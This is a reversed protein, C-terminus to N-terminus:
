RQECPLQPSLRSTCFFVFCLGVSYGWTVVLQNTIKPLNDVRSEEDLFLLKFDSGAGDNHSRPSPLTNDSWTGCFFTDTHKLPILQGLALFAYTVTPCVGILQHQPTEWLTDEGMVPSRAEPCEDIEGLCIAGCLSLSFLSKM